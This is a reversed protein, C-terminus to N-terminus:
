TSWAAGKSWSLVSLDVDDRGSFAATYFDVAEPLDGIATPLYCLRVPQTARALTLAYEILAFSDPGGAVPKLIGSFAFIQRRDSAM